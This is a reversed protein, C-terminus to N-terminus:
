RSFAEVMGASNETVAPVFVLLKRTAGEAAQINVTLSDPLIQDTAQAGALELEFYMSTRRPVQTAGRAPRPSGYPDPKREVIRVEGGWVPFGIIIAVLLAAVSGFRAM